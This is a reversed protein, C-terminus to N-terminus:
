QEEATLSIEIGYVTLCAGLEQEEAIEIDDPEEDLEMLDDSDLDIVNGVHTGDAEHEDTITPSSSRRRQVTVDRKTKLSITNAPVTKTKTKPPAAKKKTKTSPAM